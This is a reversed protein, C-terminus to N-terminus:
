GAAFDFSEFFQHALKFAVGRAPAAILYRASWVTWAATAVTERASWAPGASSPVRAATRAAGIETREGSSEVIQIAFHVADQLFQFLNTALDTASLM